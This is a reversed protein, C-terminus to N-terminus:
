TPTPPCPAPPLPYPSVLNNPSLYVLTPPPRRAHAVLPPTPPWAHAKGTHSGRRRVIPQVSSAHRPMHSFAAGLPAARLGKGGGLVHRGM